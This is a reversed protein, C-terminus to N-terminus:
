QFSHTFALALSKQRNQGNARTYILSMRTGKNPSYTFNATNIIRNDPDTVYILREVENATADSLITENNRRNHEKQLGIKYNFIVSQDESIYQTFVGPTITYLSRNQERVSVWSSDNLDSYGAVSIRSHHLDIQPGYQWRGKDFSLDYYTSLEVTTVDSQTDAVPTLQHSLDPRNIDGFRIASQTIWGSSHYRDVDFLMFASVSLNETTISLAQDVSDFEASGLSASGGISWNPNVQRQATLIPQRSSGKMSTASDPTAIAYDALNVAIQGQWQSKSPLSRMAVAQSQSFQQQTEAIELGLIPLFEMGNASANQSEFGLGAMLLTFLLRSAATNVTVM